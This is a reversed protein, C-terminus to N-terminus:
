SETHSVKSKVEQQTKYVPTECLNLQNTKKLEEYDAKYNKDDTATKVRKVSQYTPATDVPFYVIDKEQEYKEKYFTDSLAEANKAHHAM